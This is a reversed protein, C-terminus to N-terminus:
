FRARWGDGCRGEMRVKVVGDAAHQDIGRLWNRVSAFSSADGVDYVLLVGGAGRYYAATITRFREQGATDWVQLKAWAGDLLVKKIKFDISHLPPSLQTNLHVHSLSVPRSAPLPPGGSSASTPLSRSATAGIRVGGREMRRERKREYGITTIFSSTFQDEAFRLLLCSKGVGTFSPLSLSHSRPRPLRARDRRRKERKGSDGILLLKVLHDYDPRKPAAM